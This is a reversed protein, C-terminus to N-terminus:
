VQPGSSRAVTISGSYGTQFEPQLPHPCTQLLADECNMPKIEEAPTWKGCRLDPVMLVRSRPDDHPRWGAAM